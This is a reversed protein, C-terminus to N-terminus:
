INLNRCSKRKEDGKGALLNFFGKVTEKLTAQPQRSHANSERLRFCVFVLAM